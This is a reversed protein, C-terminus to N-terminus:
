RPLALSFAAVSVFAPTVLDTGTLYPQVMVIGTGIFATYIVTSQARWGDPADPVDDSTM